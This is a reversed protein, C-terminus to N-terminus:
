ERLCSAGGDFLSVSMRLNEQDKEIRKGAFLGAKVIVAVKVIQIMLQLWEVSELIEECM